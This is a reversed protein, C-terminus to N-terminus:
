GWWKTMFFQICKKRLYDSMHSTGGGCHSFLGLNVHFHFTFNVMEIAHQHMLTILVLLIKFFKKRM